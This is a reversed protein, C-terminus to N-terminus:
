YPCDFKVGLLRFYQPPSYLITNNNNQNKTYLYNFILQKNKFQVNMKACNKKKILHDFHGFFILGALKKPRAPKICNFQCSSALKLSQENGM